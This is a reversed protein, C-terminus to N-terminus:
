DINHKTSLKMLDCLYDNFASAMGKDSSRLKGEPTLIPGITSTTRTVENMYKYFDSGQEKSTHLRRIEWAERDKRIRWRNAKNILKLKARIYPKSEDEPRKIMSRYLRRAHALHRITTRTLFGGIPPPKLKVLPTAKEYANIIIQVIYASIANILEQNTLGAEHSPMQGM